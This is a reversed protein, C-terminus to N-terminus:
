IGGVQHHVDYNRYSAVQHNFEARLAAYDVAGQRRAEWLLAAALQTLFPYSESCEELYRWAEPSVEGLGDRVLRQWAAHDLEGLRAQTFINFFPSTLGGQECLDALATRSATVLALRGLQGEYRLAEVLGDFEQPHTAVHEFEDLCLVLRVQPLDRELDEITYSLVALDGDDAAGWVPLSARELDRRLTRMFARNSSGAASSLDLFIVQYRHGSHFLDAAQNKVQWLLSSKGIRRPGVISISQASIGGVRGAIAQLEAQRGYVRGPDRIAPGATFPNVPHVPAAPATLKLLPPDGYVGAQWTPRQVRGPNQASWAELQVNVHDYAESVTLYAPHRRQQVEGRLAQLLYYTFIGHELDDDEYALSDQDTASLLTIGQAQEITKAVLDVPAARAGLIAGAHCADLVLVAARAGSHQLRDQLESVSLAFRDYNNNHQNEPLLYAQGNHTLGHGAFYLLLFTQSDVGRLLRNLAADIIEITPREGGGSHLLEVHEYGNSQLLEAVAQVDKAAYKVPNFRADQYEKVGILLARYRTITTQATASM